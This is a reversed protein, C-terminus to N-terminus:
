FSRGDILEVELAFPDVGDVCGLNVRRDGVRAPGHYGAPLSAVRSFPCIGCTRCFCHDVSGDGFRYVLLSEGGDLEFADAPVYARSM